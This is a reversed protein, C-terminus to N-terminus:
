STLGYVVVVFSEEGSDQKSKCVVVENQQVNTIVSWLTITPNELVWVHSSSQQIAIKVHWCTSPQWTQWVVGRNRVVPNSICSEWQPTVQHAGVRSCINGHILFFSDVVVSKGSGASDGFICKPSKDSSPSDQKAVHTQAIHVINCQNHLCTNAQVVPECMHIACQIIQYFLQLFCVPLLTCLM